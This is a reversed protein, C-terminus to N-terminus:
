IQAMQIETGFYHHLRCGRAELRRATTSFKTESPTNVYENSTEYATCESKDEIEDLCRRVSPDEPVRNECYTTSSRSVALEGKGRGALAAAKVKASWKACGAVRLLGYGGM